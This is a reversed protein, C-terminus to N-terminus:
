EGAKMWACLENVLRMDIESEGSATCASPDTCYHDLAPYFLCTANGRRTLARKWQDFEENPLKSDKGAGICLIRGSSRRVWLLPDFEAALCLYRHLNPVRDAAYEELITDRGIGWGALQWRLISRLDRFPANIMVVESRPSIMQSLWAVVHGGLSHGIFILEREFTFLDYAALLMAQLPILYEEEYSEPCYSSDLPTKSAYICAVGHAAIGRALNAILKCTISGDGIVFSGSGPLIVAFRTWTTVPMVAVASYTGNEVCFMFPSDIVASSGSGLASM